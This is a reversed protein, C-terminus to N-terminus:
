IYEFKSSSKIEYKDKIWVFSGTWNIMRLQWRRLGGNEMWRYVTISYDKFLYLRRKLLVGVSM